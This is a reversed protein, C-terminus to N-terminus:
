GKPDRKFLLGRSQECVDAAVSMDAARARRRAAAEEDAGWLEVNWDEEVHAAAWAEDVGIHGEFVCLALIASGTLTTMQHLAAVAFPDAVADVRARFAAVAGAPQGVHMVGEGLHFRVGLIAEVKALIPDWLKRQTEVLRDPYGARYFLMDTEVYASLDARVKAPDDAVGDIVTNVFRTLPMTAPDVVDRQAEWEAALQEALALSPVVLTRRLPTKVARGDLLATFADKGTEAVTVSQYFRKPLSPRVQPPRQDSM